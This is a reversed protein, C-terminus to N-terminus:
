LPNRLFLPLTLGVCGVREHYCLWSNLENVFNMRYCSIIAIWKSRYCNLPPPICLCPFSQWPLKGDHKHWGNLPTPFAEVICQLLVHSEVPAAVLQNGAKVNPPVLTFIYSFTTKFKTESLIM